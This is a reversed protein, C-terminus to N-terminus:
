NFLKRNYKKDKCLTFIFNVIKYIMQSDIAVKKYKVIIKNIYKKM